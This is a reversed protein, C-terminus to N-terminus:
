PTAEVGGAWDMFWVWKPQAQIVEASPPQGVEGLAIPKGGAITLIEQYYRDDLRSYNDYSVVDAYQPGPYFSYFEGGPAPGNQNWVWLLNNLHHAM